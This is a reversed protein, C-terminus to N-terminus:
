CAALDKPLLHVGDAGLTLAFTRVGAATPLADYLHPFLAGGRSAEWRLADGLDRTDFQILLLDHQGSFHKALTGAIQERTSLHIFGDRM